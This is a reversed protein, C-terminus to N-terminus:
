RVCRRILEQESLRPFAETKVAVVVEGFLGGELVRRDLLARFTMLRMYRIMGSQQGFRGRRKAQFTVFHLVDLFSRAMFVHTGSRAEGTM